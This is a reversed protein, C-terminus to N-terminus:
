MVTAGGPSMSHGVQRGRFGESEDKADVQIPFQSALRFGLALQRSPNTNWFLKVVLGYRGSEPLDSHLYFKKDDWLCPPLGPEGQGDWVDVQNPFRSALRFGLALQHLRNPLQFM